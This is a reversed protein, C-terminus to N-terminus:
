FEMGGIERKKVPKVNQIDKLIGDMGYIKAVAIFTTPAVEPRLRKLLAESPRYGKVKLELITNFDDKRMANTFSCEQANDIDPMNVTHLQKGFLLLNKGITDAHEPKVGCTKATEHWHSVVEQIEAIIHRYDRIGMNEGVKQLDEMTFNDQKGNLSLQHSNTWRGGPMYSYCLDYAPALSWKGQHDMLFSFNKTHDDHNRSMVNFVMRRYLEEQQPYPLNMRRMVRFMEEYSHRQDRDYHALGALTQVHIKEGSETRDFRRTMFHYSEKEPLLRCEMMDIGCAKAMRYYAYEINGIGQPNDTIRAHESYTGGDFKLLWYGFGEPAKVQGSRVEGTLDNYAIIAKPKAGGASTGVRLIDHINREEQRLQAQFAMRDTFISKALETLEEIHIISSEDMGNIPSCPEFELAGMARKGVYCLRDLPTIEEGSLGKNAFWENIIQNGFADPLSDAFLGPLGKFCNTRNELFLYPTNNYKGIPMIIPSIDFGSRVFMREYDFLAASSKKEWYLSGVNKGWLKVDVILDDM